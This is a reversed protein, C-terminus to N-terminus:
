AKKKLSIHIMMNATKSQSEELVDRMTAIFSTWNSDPSYFKIDNNNKITVRIKM